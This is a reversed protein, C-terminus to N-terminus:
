YPQSGNGAAASYADPVATENDDYRQEKIQALTREAEDARRAMQTLANQLTMIMVEKRGILALLDTDQVEIQNM